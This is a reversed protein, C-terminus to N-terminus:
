TLLRVTSICTGGRIYLIAASVKPQYSVSAVLALGIAAEVLNLHSPVVIYKKLSVALQGGRAPNALHYSYAYGM